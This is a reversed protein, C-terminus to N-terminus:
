GLRRRNLLAAYNKRIENRRNKGMPLAKDKIFLHNYDATTVHDYNVLYSAHIFLFARTKLQEEYVDKLAGYFDDETGDVFRIIIKRDLSELYLIDKVQVTRLAHRKKYIFEGEAAYSNTKLHKKVIKEIKEVKERTLPKKIFSMPHIDFLKELFRKRWSIYVISMRNNDLVDRIFNGTQVGNIENKAFGIDLFLLDCRMGGELARCLEVGSHFVTIECVAGLSSFIGALVDELEATIDKEDDCIAIKVM